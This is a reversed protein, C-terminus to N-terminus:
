SCFAPLYIIAHANAAHIRPRVRSQLPLVKLVHVRDMAVTLRDESASSERSMDQQAKSLDSQAAALDDDSRKLEAQL